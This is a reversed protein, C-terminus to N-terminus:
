LALLAAGAVAILPPILDEVSYNLHGPGDSGPRQGTRGPVLSVRCDETARLLVDAGARTNRLLGGGRVIKLALPLAAAGPVPSEAPPAAPTREAAPPSAPGIVYVPPGGCSIVLADLLVSCILAALRGRTPM